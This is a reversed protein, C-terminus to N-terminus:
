APPEETEDFGGDPDSADAPQSESGEMHTFMFGPAADPVYNLPTTEEEVSSEEVLDTPAKTIIEETTKLLAQM